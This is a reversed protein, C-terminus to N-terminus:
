RMVCKCALNFERQDVRTHERNKIYTVHKYLEVPHLNELRLENSAINLVITTM